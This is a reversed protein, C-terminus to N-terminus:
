RFEQYTSVNKVARLKADNQQWYRIDKEVNDILEDELSKLDASAMPRVADAVVVGFGRHSKIVIVAQRKITCSEPM